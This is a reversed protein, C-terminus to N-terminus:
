KPPLLLKNEIAERDSVYALNLCDVFLKSTQLYIMLKETQEHSFDPIYGLDRNHDRDRSLLSILLLSRILIPKLSVEFFMLGFDDVVVVTLLGAFGYLSVLLIWVITPIDRTPM